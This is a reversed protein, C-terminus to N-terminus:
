RVSEAPAPEVRGPRRGGKSVWRFQWGVQKALPREMEYHDFSPQEDYMRWRRPSDYASGRPEIFPLPKARPIIECGCWPGGVFTLIM